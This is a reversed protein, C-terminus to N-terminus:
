LTCQHSKTGKAMDKMERANELVTDTIQSGGLLRALELISEEGDLCSIHTTTSM